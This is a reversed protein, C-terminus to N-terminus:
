RGWRSVIDLLLQSGQLSLGLDDLEGQLGALTGYGAVYGNVRAAATSAVFDDNDPYIAAFEKMLEPRQRLQYKQHYDEAPYFESAPVIETYIDQQLRAAERAKSDLALRKQEEDHYFVVSMYQRSGVPQTPRHTTWFVDLLEEYSIETPDYDIQIAESHDGLSRYTPGKKVGGAYGVRTRVV